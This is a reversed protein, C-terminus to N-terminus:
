IRKWLLRGSGLCSLSTLDVVECVTWDHVAEVLCPNAAQLSLDGTEMSM